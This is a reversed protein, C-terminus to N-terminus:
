AVIKQKNQNEKIEDYCFDLLVKVEFNEASKRDRSLSSDSISHSDLMSSVQKKSALFELIVRIQLIGKQSNNDPMLLECKIGKRQAFKWEVRNFIGQINIRKFYKKIFSNKNVFNLDNGRPEFDQIIKDRIQIVDFITNDLLIVDEEENLPKFKNLMNFSM